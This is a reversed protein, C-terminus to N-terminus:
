RVSRTVAREVMRVLSEWEYSVQAIRIDFIRLFYERPDFVPFRADPRSLAIPDYRFDEKSGNEKFFTDVFAYAIWRRDGTGCIHFSTQAEYIGYSRHAQSKPPQVDLFSLDTWQRPPYINGV